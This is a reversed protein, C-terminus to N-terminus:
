STCPCGNFPISFPTGAGNDALAVHVGLASLQDLVTRYNEHGIGVLNEPPIDLELYDPSLGTEKLIKEVLEM